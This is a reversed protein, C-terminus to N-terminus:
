LLNPTIVNLNKNIKLLKNKLIEKNNWSIVLFCKEKKLIAEEPSLVEFNNYYLRNKHNSNSDIIFNIKKMINHLSYKILFKDTIKSIGFISFSKFKFNELQEILNEIILDETYSNMLFRFNFNEKIITKNPKIDNNFKFDNIKNWLIEHHFKNTKGCHVGTGDHGINEVLSQRPYITYMDHKYQHFMINVDNANIKGNLQLHIMNLLDLGYKAVEKKDSEEFEKKTFPKMKFYKDAWLINGWGSFRRLTFFDKKYNIPLDIPPTYGSISFINNNNRYFKEADNMFQLFGPSTIIDDELSIMAGYEKLIKESNIVTNQYYNNTTQKIIHVKKFGNISDLYQRLKYVKEEDGKKPADSFIFLESEKALTNKKLADITRTLHEIRIYTLIIIPLLKNM